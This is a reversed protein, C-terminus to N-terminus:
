VDPVGGLHGAVWMRSLTWGQEALELMRETVEVRSVVTHGNRARDVTFLRVREDQLPLGDLLVPNHSTVLLQRGSALTWECVREILARALRPNLGQDINDIACVPPTRPHLCLVAAFVVHLAGESADYSTLTNRDSSMYRDVFKFVNQTTSVSRSLPLGLAPAARVEAVWDLMTQFHEEIEERQGEAVSAWTEEFAEPLQGGSLGIPDRPAPDPVLGRMVDTTPTFIRYESLTRLLRSQPADPPWEAMKLAALGREPNGRNASRPSRGVLHNGGIELRETAYTWEPRPNELPNNLSVQYEVKEGGTARLNINAPLREAQFSSKYLAPIGPRVGRYKLAADDVRGEAAAGLVGLAELLSSKGSGNAGVFVNVQGLSLRTQAHSKFGTIEFEDLTTAGPPSAEQEPGLAM